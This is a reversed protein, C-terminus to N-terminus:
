SISYSASWKEFREQESVKGLAYYCIGDSTGLKDVIKEFNEITGAGTLYLKKGAGLIKKYLEPWETVDKQGDGPVWQIVKLKEIDLLSDLHKIAGPGDLHFMAGGLRECSSVLEPKVFEDFLQPSLMSCFDCQLLFTPRPCPIPLWFDMYGISYPLILKSLDDYYQWWAKHAQRMLRKIQEPQDYMAYVIDEAPIIMALIDYIGGLNTMVPQVKGNWKEGVAKYIERTRKLWISEPNYRIEIDNLNINGRPEFWITDETVTYNCNMYVAMASSALLPRVFPFGDGLYEIGSLMYDWADVFDHCSVDADFFLRLETGPKAPIDRGPDKGTLWIHILPRGLSGDWFRRGDDKIKAYKSTGFEITM